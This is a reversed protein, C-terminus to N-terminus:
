PVKRHPISVASSIIVLAIGAGIRLEDVLREDDLVAVIVAAVDERPVQGRNVHRALTVRGTGGDNTLRGPRVVTWTTSM